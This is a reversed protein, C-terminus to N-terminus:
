ISRCLVGFVNAIATYSARLHLIPKLRLASMGPQQTSAINKDCHRTRILMFGEMDMESCMSPAAFEPRDLLKPMAGLVSCRAQGGRTLNWADSVVRGNEMCREVKTFTYSRRERWDVLKAEQCRGSTPRSDFQLTAFFLGQM